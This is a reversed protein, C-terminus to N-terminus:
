LETDVVISRERQVALPKVVGFPSVGRRGRDHQEVPDGAVGAGPVVLRAGEGRAVADEREVLATVAIRIRRGVAVVGHRRHRGVERGEGVREPEPVERDDPERHAPAHGDGEGAAV